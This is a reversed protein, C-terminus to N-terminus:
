TSCSLPLSLVENPWIMFTSLQDGNLSGILANIKSIEGEFSGRMYWTDVLTNVLYLHALIVLSHGYLSNRDSRELSVLFSSPISCPWSLIAAEELDLQIETDTSDETAACRLVSLIRLYVSDLIRITENHADLAWDLTESPSLQSTPTGSCSSLDDLPPGLADLSAKISAVAQRAGEAFKLLRPSCRSLRSPAYSSSEEWYNDTHSLILIARLRSNKLVYWQDGIVSNVGRNLYLWNLRPTDNTLSPTAMAGSMEETAGTLPHLGQVRLFAFAFAVLLLSGTFVSEANSPSIRSVEERFGELGRQHHIMIIELDVTDSYEVSTGIADAKLKIMHMGGLALLLHMLYRSESALEPMIQQWVNSRRQHLTMQRGTHLHYFQLLKLDNMDLDGHRHQHPPNSITTPATANISLPQILGLPGEDFSELFDPLNSDKETDARSRPPKRSTVRPPPYSCPEGRSSCTRCAPQLEDCKVRRFKCPYCGNRSKTHRARHRRVRHNDASDSAALVVMDRDM